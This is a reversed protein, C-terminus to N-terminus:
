TATGKVVQTVATIHAPSSGCCGGVIRAGIAILDPMLGAFDAPTMDYVTQGRVLKPLGANPKAILPAGPLVEAMARLVPAVMDIGEGCNAGISTLGLPWLEEVAQSPGTGMMTRGKPGFSLSCFIPLDCSKRAGIVAARAEELDMMTEIWILDAGGEALAEAQEAFGAMARDFTLPGYPAMLEGTPGIDGAVYADDGAATRALNVAARNLEQSRGDLGHRALKIRSGGFTNTLIINSGADLYSRHLQIIQEPQDVNVLEPPTGLLLGAAILTTGTAGDAILTEGAQLREILGKHM